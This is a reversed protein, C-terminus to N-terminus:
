LCCLAKVEESTVMEPNSNELSKSPKNCYYVIAAAILCCVGVAIGVALMELYVAIAIGTAVGTIALMSAAIVPLKSKANQPTPNNKDRCGPQNINDQANNVQECDKNAVLHVATSKLQADEEGSNKDVGESSAPQTSSRTVGRNTSDTPQEVDTKNDREQEPTPNNKFVAPLVESQLNQENSEREESDLLQVTPLEKRNGINVSTLQPSITVGIGQVSSGTSPICVKTGINHIEFEDGNGIKDNQYNNSTLEEVSGDADNVINKRKGVSGKIARACEQNYLANKLKECITDYTFNPGSGKEELHKLLAKIYGQGGAGILLKDLGEDQMFLVSGYKEAAYREVLIDNAAVAMLVLEKVPYNEAKNCKSLMNYIHQHDGGNQLDLNLKRLYFNNLDKTNLQIPIDGYYEIGQIVKDLKKYNSNELAQDLINMIKHFTLTGPIDVFEEEEEEKEDLFCDKVDDLLNGYDDAYNKLQKPITLTLKCNEYKVDECDKSNLSFELVTSVETIAAGNLKNIPIKACYRINLSNQNESTINIRREVSNSPILGYYNFTFFLLVPLREYGAQNCSIILEDLIKDNPVQAKASRFIETLIYKAFEYEGNNKNNRSLGHIYNKDISESNIVFYPMRPLDACAVRGSRVGENERDGKIKDLFSSTPSIELIIPNSSGQNTQSGVNPDRSYRSNEIVQQDDEANLGVSTSDFSHAQTVM